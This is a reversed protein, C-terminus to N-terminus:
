DQMRARRRRLVLFMYGGFLIVVAGFVSLAGMTPIMPTYGSSMKTYLWETM